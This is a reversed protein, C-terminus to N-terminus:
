TRVLYLTAATPVSLWMTLELGETATGSMGHCECVTFRPCHYFYSLTIIIRSTTDVQITKHPINAWPYLLSSMKITVKHHFGYCFVPHVWPFRLRFSHCDQALDASHHIALNTPPFTCLSSHSSDVLLWEFLAWRGFLYLQPHHFLGPLSSVWVFRFEKTTPEFGVCGM